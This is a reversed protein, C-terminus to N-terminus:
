AARDPAFFALAVDTGRPLDDKKGFRDPVERDAFQYIPVPLFLLPTALDLKYMIQNYDYRPTREGNGSFERTYTGEFFITRGGAKDFLPHQKPNYFSYRDHTVVKRAYVWPGLPTDGEAYWVEGLASTGGFEVTIMVWRGRYKNWYVSGGHALIS